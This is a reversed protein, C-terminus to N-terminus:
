RPRAPRGGKKGNERSAVAKAASQSAGGRRGITAAVSELGLGDVQYGVGRAAALLLAASKTIRRGIPALAGTTEAPGLAQGNVVLVPLGYSSSAHETTLVGRGEGVRVQMRMM